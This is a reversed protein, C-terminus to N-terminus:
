EQMAIEFRKIINKEFCKRCFVRDKTKSVMQNAKYLTGFNEWIKHASKKSLEKLKYGNTITFDETTETSTEAFSSTSSASSLGPTYESGSDVYESDTIESSHECSSM